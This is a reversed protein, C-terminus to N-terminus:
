SFRARSIFIGNNHFFCHSFISLSASLSHSSLAATRKNTSWCVCLSLSILRWAFESTRRIKAKESVCVCKECHLNEGVSVSALQILLIYISLATESEREWAWVCVCRTSREQLNAANWVGARRTLVFGNWWLDLSLCLPTVSASPPFPLLLYFTPLFSCSLCVCLHGRLSGSFSLAFAKPWCQGWSFNGQQQKAGSCGVGIWCM